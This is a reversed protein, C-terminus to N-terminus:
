QGDQQESEGGSQGRPQRCPPREPEIGRTSKAAVSESEVHQISSIARVPSPCRCVIRLLLPNRCSIAKRSVVRSQVSEAVALRRFAAECGSRPKQRRRREFLKELYQYAARHSVPVATASIIITAIPLGFDVYSQGTTSISAIASSQPAMISLAM